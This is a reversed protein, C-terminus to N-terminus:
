RHYETEDCFYYKEELKRCTLSIKQYAESNLALFMHRPIITTSISSPISYLHCILPFHLILIIKCDINLAKIDIIEYYKTQEEYKTYKLQNIWYYKILTEIKSNIEKPRIISTHLLKLKAFTISVEIESLIQILIDLTLNIQHLGNRTFM